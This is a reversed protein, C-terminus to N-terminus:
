GHGSSSFAALSEALASGLSVPLDKSVVDLSGATWPDMDYSVRLPIVLGAM